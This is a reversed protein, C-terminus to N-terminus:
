GLTAFLSDYGYGDPVAYDEYRVGQPAYALHHTNRQGMYRLCAADSTMIQVALNKKAAAHRNGNFQLFGDMPGPRWEEMARLMNAMGRDTAMFCGGGMWSGGTADFYWDNM